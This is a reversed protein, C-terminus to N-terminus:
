SYTLENDDHDPEVMVLLDGDTTLTGGSGERTGDVTYPKGDFIWSQEWNNGDIRLETAIEDAAEAKAHEGTPLLGAFQEKEIPTLTYSYTGDALSSADDGGSCAAVAFLLALIAALGVVTRAPQM